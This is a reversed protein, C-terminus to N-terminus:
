ERKEGVEVRKELKKGSGSRGKEGDDDRGGGREFVLGKAGGVDGRM